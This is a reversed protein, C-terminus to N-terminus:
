KLHSDFYIVWHLQVGDVNTFHYIESPEPNPGTFMTITIIGIKRSIWENSGMINLRQQIRLLITEKSTYDLIFITKEIKGM